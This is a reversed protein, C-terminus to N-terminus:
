KSEKIREILDSMETSDEKASTLENIMNSLTSYIAKQTGLQEDPCSSLIYNKIIDCKYTVYDIAEISM